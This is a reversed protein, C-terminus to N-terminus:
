HKGMLHTNNGFRACSYKKEMECNCNQLLKQLWNCMIFVSHEEEKQKFWCCLKKMTGIKNNPNKSPDLKLLM